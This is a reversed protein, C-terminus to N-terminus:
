SPGRGSVAGPEGTDAAGAESAGVGQGGGAKVFALPAAVLTAAAM